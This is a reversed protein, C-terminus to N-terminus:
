AALHALVLENIDNGAPHIFEGVTSSRYYSAKSLLADIEKISEDSFTAIYNLKDGDFDAGLRAMVSPSVSYSDFFSTTMDPYRPYREGTEALHEDLVKIDRTKSTVKLKPEIVIASGENASPYRTTTGRVRSETKYLTVYLLEALKIPRARALIDASVNTTDNIIAVGDGTDVVLALTYEKSKKKYIVPGAKTTPARLLRILSENGSKTMWLDYYDPDPDVIDMKMTSTNILNMNSNKGMLSEGLFSAKFVYNSLPLISAAYQKLGVLVDNTGIGPSDIRKPETIASTLVNASSNHIKRKVWKANIVTHKGLLINSLYEYVEMASVQLSVAIENIDKSTNYSGPIISASNIMKRYISNIEDEKNRGDETVMYDRIGAPIVLMRRCTLKDRYKKLMAILEKRTTSGTDELRIDKIHRIFFEFGTEAKDDNSEVFDKVKNDFIAYARGTLIEGYFKRAKTLAKYVIPQVISTKLDIYSFTVNREDSGIAGFIETSFLGDPHFTHSSPERIDSMTVPRLVKIEDVDILEINLEKM